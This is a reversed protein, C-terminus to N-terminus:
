CLFDRVQKNEDLLLEMSRNFEGNLLSQCILANWILHAKCLALLATLFISCLAVFLNFFGLAHCALIFSIFMWMFPDQILASLSLSQPPHMEKLEEVPIRCIVFILILLGLLVGLLFAVMERPVPTM